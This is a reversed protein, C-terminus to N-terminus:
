RNHPSVRRLIEGASIEVAGLKIALRRKTKTLDYHPLGPLNQFYAPKLGLREAFQHLEPITDASLHCYHSWRWRGGSEDVPKCRQLPDVYIMAEM